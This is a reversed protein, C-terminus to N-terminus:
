APVGGRVGRVLRRVEPVAAAVALIVVGQLVEVMQKPVLAHIALGGQSLTAFLFAAIIVGFPHNRGVLAVAIGLFGAGGGFGEEYYQKYGLVYNIGGLGALAGSIIFAKMWVAGVRVGGYEAADPQLGVARLEYGARTRFLMWGVIVAAAIAIFLSLNVASGHFASVWDMLRPLTGARMDPTHLTEPVHLHSAVIWNLFALVIFNLMITVIVEHAGFRAKMVGPIAGVVGGALLAAAICLPVALIGPTGAPLLLGVVAAAFGGAALQGEGGINFLGARLAVSVALGTCILTTAKYLVQGFGYWNAWTGGLMLRYVASPSQGVLLILIDGVVLAVLLAVLPPLLAEEVRRRTAATTV